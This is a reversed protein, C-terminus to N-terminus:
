AVDKLPAGDLFTRARSHVRQREGESIVGTKRLCDAKILMLAASAADKIPFILERDMRRSMSFFSRKPRIRIRPRLGIRNRLRLQQASACGSKADAKATAIVPSVDKAPTEEKAVSSHRQTEVMVTRGIVPPRLHQNGQRSPSINVFGTLLVACATLVTVMCFFYGLLPAIM